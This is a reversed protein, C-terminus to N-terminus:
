VGGIQASYTNVIVEDYEFLQADNTITIDKEFVIVGSVRDTGVIIHGENLLTKGQILGMDFENLELVNTGNSCYLNKMDYNVGDAGVNELEVDYIYHTSNSLDNTFHIALNKTFLSNQM